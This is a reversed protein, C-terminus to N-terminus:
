TKNSTGHEQICGLLKNCQVSTQCEASEMDSNYPMSNWVLQTIM